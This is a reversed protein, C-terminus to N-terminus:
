CSQRYGSKWTLQIVHVQHQYPDVVLTEVAVIITAQVDNHMHKTETCM